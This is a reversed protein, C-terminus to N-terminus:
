PEACREAPAASWGPSLLSCQEATVETLLEVLMVLLAQADAGGAASPRIRGATCHTGALYCFADPASEQTV